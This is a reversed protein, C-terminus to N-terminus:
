RKLNVLDQLMQDVTTIIKSNAQYGRQTIIMDSFEEALDVNSMELWKHYLQGKGAEGPVGIQSIGTNSSAAFLSSGEKLLGGPNSFTALCLQGIPRNLGNTYVGYVIGDTDVSFSDLAGMANGDIDTAGVTTASAFQSMINFNPSISFNGAGNTPVIDINMVTSNTPDYAGTADFAVVGTYPGAGLNAGSADWTWTNSATKTFTVTIEHRSGLDDFVSISCSHTEGIADDANLNGSYEIFTTAAAPMHDGLPIRINDTQQNNNIVGGVAPWGQLKYGSPHILNGKGDIQFNGSRTYFTQEGHKLVFFGDGVIAMDSGLGTMQMNGQNFNTDISSVEVGLGVQQPNTGGRNGSPSTAGRMLHSIMEHFSVRDKKFGSTNVNAINYGIVDMRTQFAKLGAVGAFISRMM